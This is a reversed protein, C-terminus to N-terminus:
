AAEPALLNGLDIDSINLRGTVLRPLLLDRTRILGGNMRQLAAISAFCARHAVDFSLAIDTSPVVVRLNYAQDRSLGPVAAHSDIFTMHRLQWYLLGLPGDTEVYYTTDIPFFPRDLWWISGVNGKRGIVIGPGDVLAEDHEDIVGASSVVAVGGPHRSRAPLAKGYKLTAVESLSVADWSAPIQGIRSDRFRDDHGPFRFRVFWERYLSRTLDELLEIRRQNIEILEDFAALVTGIRQQERLPPCTIQLEGCDPVRMHEVTAGSGFAKIQSQVDDSRMAALLFSRDTCTPDTRYMVLRQGLLVGADEALIGVEGLPAERTLIIDGRKPPGRRVWREYTLADVYKVSSLDVRGHRVNPTRIMRYPTPGAVTPATKNVCDIIAECLERIPVRRWESM